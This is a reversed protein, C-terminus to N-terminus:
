HMAFFLPEDEVLGVLAFSGTTSSRDADAAIRWARAAVVENAIVFNHDFDFLLRLVLLDVDGDGSRLLIDLDLAGEGVPGGGGGGGGQRCLEWRCTSPLPEDVERLL